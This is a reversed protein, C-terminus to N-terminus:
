RAGSADVKCISGSIRDKLQAENMAVWKMKDRERRAEEDAKLNRSSVETVAKDLETQLQLVQKEKAILRKV